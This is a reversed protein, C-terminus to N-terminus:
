IKNKVHRIDIKDSVEGLVIRLDDTYEIQCPRFISASNTKIVNEFQTEYSQHVNKEDDENWDVSVNLIGPNKNCYDFFLPDSTYLSHFLPGFRGIKAANKTKLILENNQIDVIWKTQEWGFLMEAFESHEKIHARKGVRKIESLIKEPSQVYALTNVSYILDFEKDKFPLKTASPDLPEYPKDAIKRKTFLGCFIDTREFAEDDFSLHLVRDTPNVFM